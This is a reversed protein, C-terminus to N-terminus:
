CIDLYYNRKLVVFFEVQSELLFEVMKSLIGAQTGMLLPCVSLSVSPESMCM